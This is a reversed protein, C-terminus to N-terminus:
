LTVRRRLAIARHVCIEHCCYCRICGAYNVTMRGDAFSIVQKPCVKECQRCQICRDPRVAPYPLAIRSLAPQWARPLFNVVAARSAGVGSARKFPRGRGDPKEGLFTLKEASEPILGRELAAKLTHVEHIGMGAVQAALLDAAHPNVAGILVGAQRPIGGTPGRGEMACIGDIVSFAPSIFEALDILMGALRERQTFNKHLLPKDYGPVAGFLNKVAGTMGMMSHTKLKAVSIVLEASLVPTIMECHHLVQGAPLEVRRHSVDLCLAAGTERAAATMGCKDYTQEQGARSYGGIGSDAISVEAGAQIFEAALARIVAPHTTVAAEPASPLALNPKLLVKKRGNLIAGAGGFASLMEHIRTSVRDARYDPCGALYVRTDIPERM